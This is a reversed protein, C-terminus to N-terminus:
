RARRVLIVSLGKRYARFRGVMRDRRAVDDLLDKKEDPDQKLDFLGRPRGDSAILKEDGDIFAEREANFPGEAMDIFVPRPTDSGPAGAIEPLLSEGSLSARVEDAPPLAGMVDLITPVLDVLSRRSAVRHAVVTPLRVILPVRVLPEWLEFGHRIMGHEGFAEGHDSTVIVVTKGGWPSKAVLDLIRGVQHDVYAIEGLYRGKEDAGFDFGPHPVYEAHPDTFHTWLFFRGQTNEVKALQALVADGQKEGNSSRDSEVYGAGGSASSDIVDFGRDFGYTSQYFYWYGQVSITRIGRSQLRQQVFVDKRFANFHSYDRGTESSHKGILMPGVSKGTYSAPAYARDFVVSTKALRDLEPTVGRPNELCDARMTDITILVLNLDKPLASRWADGGAGQSAPSREIVVAEADRGSCDEDVGNKPADDAGPNRAPDHDDCDGGGFVPSFGDHDGDFVRRALGLTVKSLPAMREVALSVSRSELFTGCAGFTLLWPLVVAIAAAWRPVRRMVWPGVFAAMALAALIGVARLDLEPRKFVGFGALPHGTGSPTGIMVLGASSVLGVLLGVGGWRVPDPPDRRLRMGLARHAALPVLSLLLLLGVTGIGLAGGVRGSAGEKSLLTVALRASLVIWLVALGPAMSVIVVLRARKRGDTPRLWKKLRDPSPTQNVFLAITALGVLLGVLCAMPAVLGQVALIVKLEAFSSSAWLGELGGLIWGLISTAAVALLLRDAAARCWGGVSSIGDSDGSTVEAPPMLSIPPVHVREGGHDAGGEVDRGEVFGGGASPNPEAGGGGQADGAPQDTPAPEQDQNPDHDNSVM